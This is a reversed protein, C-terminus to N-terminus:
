QASGPVPTLTRTNANALTSTAIPQYDRITVDVVAKGVLRTNAVSHLHVPFTFEGFDAYDQVFDINKVFFSPTKVFSGEVRRLRGTYVDIFIKGKFLGPRKERPKLNFVYVPEGAIEDTGKYSFKYNASTVATQNGDQREVHDAESQLLRTIVNSKVFNDGTFRVAKFKLTAPALYHRLLEFEGSQKTDPLDASIVTEASYESLNLAQEVLRGEYINLALEPAMRPQGPSVVLVPGNNRQPLIASISPEPFSMPAPNLFAEQAVMPAALFIILVFTFSPILQKLTM